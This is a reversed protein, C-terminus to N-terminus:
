RTSIEQSGWFGPPGASLVAGGSTSPFSDSPIIGPRLYLICFWIHCWPVEEPEYLWVIYIISSKEVWFGSQDHSMKNWGPFMSGVHPQDRACALLREQVLGQQGRWGGWIGKVQEMIFQENTWLCQHDGAEKNWRQNEKRSTQGRQNPKLIM